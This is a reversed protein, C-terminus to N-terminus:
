KRRRSDRQLRDHLLSTLASLLSLIAGSVSLLLAHERFFGTSELTASHLMGLLPSM